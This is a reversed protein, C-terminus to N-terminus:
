IKTREDTIARSGQRRQRLCRQAAKGERLRGLAPQVNGGLPREEVLDESAMLACRIRFDDAERETDSEDLIGQGVVLGTTALAKGSGLGLTAQRSGEVGHVAL